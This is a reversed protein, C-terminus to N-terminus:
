KTPASKRSRDANSAEQTATLLKMIDAMASVSGSRVQAMSRELLDPLLLDIQV